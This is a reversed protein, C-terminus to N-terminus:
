VTTPDCIAKTHTEFSCLALPKLPIDIQFEVSTRMLEQMQNEVNRIRCTGASADIIQKVMALGMGAPWLEKYKDHAQEHFRVFFEFVLPELYRPIGIAHSGDHLLTSPYAPNITIISLADNNVEIWSSISDQEASYKMANTWVEVLAGRLRECDVHIGFGKAKKPIDRPQFRFQQKRIGARWSEEDAWSMIKTILDPLAIDTSHVGSTILANAETIGDVLPTISSSLSDFLYKPVHLNKSDEIPLKRIRDLIQKIGDTQGLHRHLQGIVGDSSNRTSRQTLFLAKWYALDSQKKLIGQQEKFGKRKCLIDQAKAVAKLVVDLNNTPDLIVDVVDARCIELLRTPCATESLVIVTFDSRPLEAILPLLDDGLALEDLILIASSLSRATGTITTVDDIDFLQDTHLALAARVSRLVFVDSNFHVIPSELM